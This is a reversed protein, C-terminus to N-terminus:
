GIYGGESRLRRWSQLRYRPSCTRRSLTPTTERKLAMKQQGGRAVHILRVQILAQLMNMSIPGAVMVAWLEAQAAAKPDSPFGAEAAGDIGRAIMGLAGSMVWVM